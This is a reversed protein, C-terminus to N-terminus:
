PHHETLSDGTQFVSLGIDSTISWDPTWISSLTCSRGPRGKRRLEVASASKLPVVEEEM